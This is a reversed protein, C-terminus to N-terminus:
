SRSADRMIARLRSAESRRVDKGAQIIDSMEFPYVIVIGDSDAVVIDRPSVKVGGCILPVNLGGRVNRHTTYPFSGRAFVPLRLRKIEDIDRVLGDLVVGAIRKRHAATALIGGFVAAETKGMSKLVLVSGPMAASVAARVASTSGHRTVATIAPGALKNVEGIPRIDRSVVRPKKMADCITAVGLRALSDVATELDKSKGKKDSAKLIKLESRM